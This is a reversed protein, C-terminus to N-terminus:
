SKAINSLVEMESKQCHKSNPQLEHYINLSSFIWVHHITQGLFNCKLFIEPNKQM